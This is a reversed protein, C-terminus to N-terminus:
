VSVQQPSPVIVLKGLKRLILADLKVDAPLHNFINEDVSIKKDQPNISM